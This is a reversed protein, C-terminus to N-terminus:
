ILFLSCYARKRSIAMAGEDKRGVFHLIVFTVFFLLCSIILNKKETSVFRIFCVQEGIRVKQLCTSQIIKFPPFAFQPWRSFMYIVSYICSM